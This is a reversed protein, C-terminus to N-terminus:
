VTKNKKWILMASVGFPFTIFNLLIKEFYFITYFIAGRIKNKEPDDFDSHLTKENKDSYIINSIKRFLWIPLFLISNFYTKYIIQGPQDGSFLAKLEPLRYRRFHHNIVDHKSWLDMFAPVTVFVHGGPKALRCLEQVAKQHDEIHEIVDFACVWDFSGQEFPLDTASANVVPLHLEETLFQCCDKDYEVSTVEGFHALYESSRGTACGVNLIKLSNHQKEFKKFTQLIIQERVRFWWHKRELLYYEKYYNKDM